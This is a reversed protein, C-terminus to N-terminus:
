LCRKELDEIRQELAAIRGTSAMLAAILSEIPSLDVPQRPPIYATEQTVVHRTPIYPTEHPTEVPRLVTLLALDDSSTPSDGGAEERLQNLVNILDRLFQGKEQDFAWSEPLRFPVKDVM